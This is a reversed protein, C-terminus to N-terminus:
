NSYLYIYRTNGGANKVLIRDTQTNGGATIDQAGTFTIAFGANDANIINLVSATNGSATLHRVVAANRGSINTEVEFLGLDSTPSSGSNTIWLGVKDIDGQSIVAAITNASHNINLSQGSRNNLMSLMPLTGSALTSRELYLLEEGAAATTERIYIGKKATYQNITLYGFGATSGFITLPTNNNSDYVNLQNDAGTLVIRQGTGSATQITGGTVTGGTLTLDTGDYKLLKAASSGIEFLAPNGVASDDIGLIFGATADQGFDTKGASIFADGTGDSIALTITKSTITGATLKSVALDNIKANTVALDVLEVTDVSGANLLSSTLDGGTITASTATLAGALTVRFLASAFIANGMWLGDVQNFGLINNGSGILADAGRIQANYIIPRNYVTGEQEVKTQEDFTQTKVVNDSGIKVVNKEKIEIDPM